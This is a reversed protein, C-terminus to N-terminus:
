RSAKPSLPVYRFRNLSAPNRRAAEVASAFQREPIWYVGAGAEVREGTSTYNFSRAPAESACSPAPAANTEGAVRASGNGVMRGDNSM